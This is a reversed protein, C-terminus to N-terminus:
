FRVRVGATLGISDSLDHVVAVYTVKAFVGVQQNAWSSVEVSYDM